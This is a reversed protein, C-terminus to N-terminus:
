PIRIGSITISRVGAEISTVEANPGLARTIQRRLEGTALHLGLASVAIFGLLALLSWKLWRNPRPPTM